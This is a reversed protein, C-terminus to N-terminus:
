NRSSPPRKLAPDAKQRPQPPAALSHLLALLAQRDDGPLETYRQSTAAAEGGHLRIAEDLTKARGDHLYPASSAVGWLPATRWEGPAAENVPKPLEKGGALDVVPAPTSTGGYYTGSDGLSVGLDHLLLDSYMGAVSGLRPAHCAACGISEFVAHGRSLVLGNDFPKFVPAPLARVFAVLLDCQDEDLDLTIKSPDFDKSATLSAQHHGPVELGLENSCAALVFDRLSSIQCKWGFRGLRGDRLRSVRGKIEPFSAFKRQEAELLTKDSVADIRGAGFLAPTSRRTLRLGILEDRTQVTKVAKMDGLRAQEDPLVAFHHVVVSTKNRFGPHLDELEGKYLQAGRDTRPPGVFATLIDVDHESEGAGGIGGVHHCGVCSRENYLPGLGDGGAPSPEGSEWLKVFLDRADAYPRSVTGRTRHGSGAGAVVSCTAALLVAARLCAWRGVGSPESNIIRRRM